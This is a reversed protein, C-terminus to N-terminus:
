PLRGAARAAARAELRATFDAHIRAREAPDRQYVPVPALVPPGERQFGQLVGHLYSLPTDVRERRQKRDLRDLAMSLWPAAWRKLLATIRQEVHPDAPLVKRAKAVLACVEPPPPESDAESKSDGEPEEIPPRPPVLDPAIPQAPGACDTAGSFLPGSRWLLSIVHGSNVVLGLWRRCRKVAILGARVLESLALQATRKSKGILEGISESSLLCHQYKRSTEADLTRAVHRANPSLTALLRADLGAVKM